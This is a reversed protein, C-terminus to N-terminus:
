KGGRRASRTRGGGGPAARGRGGRAGRDRGGRGGGGRPLRLKHDRNLAGARGRKVAVVLRRKRDLEVLVAGRDYMLGHLALHRRDADDIGQIKKAKPRGEIDADGGVPVPHLGVKVLTAM